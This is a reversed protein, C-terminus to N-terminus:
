TGSKKPKIKIGKLVYIVAILAIILFVTLVSFEM